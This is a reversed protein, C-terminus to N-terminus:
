SGISKTSVNVLVFTTKALSMGMLFDPLASNIAAIEDEKEPVQKNFAAQKERSAHMRALSDPPEQVMNNNIAVLAISGGPIEPNPARITQLVGDCLASAHSEAEQDLVPPYTIAEEEQDL